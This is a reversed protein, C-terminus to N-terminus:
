GVVCNKGTKKAKYLNLDALKITHQIDGSYESSLGISLTCRIIKDNFAIQKSSIEDCFDSLLEHAKDNAIHPMFICFEEGGFRCVTHAVFRIAVLKAIAKLVQDGGDHGYEDNLKKFNDIDIVALSLSSPAARLGAEVRNFFHRRNPLGTLYDSNAARHIAEVSELNEINQSVRCFFEEHGFNKPLYDNAGSKLFRASLGDADLGSLGIIALDQKNFQRRIEAVMEVGNMNPMSEDTLVLKIDNHRKLTEIGDLGDSAEYTKFNHRQLLSTIATRSVQSDDVVLVAIRKNKQLRTLLRSLYEYIQVNEKPIYDVIPRKIIKHRTKQDLRGTIVITPIMSAITFDISEGNPADPINFDVLACLYDEPTEKSFIDQAKALTMASVPTLGAKVILKRMLKMSTSSDEIVLVKQQM